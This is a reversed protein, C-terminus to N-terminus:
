ATALKVSSTRMKAPQRTPRFSQGVRGEVIGERFQLVALEGREEGALGVDVM